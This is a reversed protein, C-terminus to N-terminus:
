YNGKLCVTGINSVKPSLITHRFKMVIFNLQQVTISFFVLKKEEKTWFVRPCQPSKAM